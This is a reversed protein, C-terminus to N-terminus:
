EARSLDPIRYRFVEGVGWADLGTPEVTAGADVLRAVTDAAGPDDVDDPPVHIFIGHHPTPTAWTELTRHLQPPHAIVVPVDDRLHLVIPPVRGMATTDIVVLDAGNLLDAPHDGTDPVYSVSTVISAVIVAGGIGILARKPGALCRWIAVLAVAILPWIPALYQDGMAHLPSMATLYSGFVVFTIWLLLAIAAAVETSRLTREQRRWRVFFAVLGAALGLAVIVGIVATPHRVVLLSLASFERGIRSRLLTVSFPQAQRQQRAISELVHPQLVLFTTAGVAHCALLALARRRGRWRAALIVGLAATGTAVAAFSFNTLLGAGVAVALAVIWPPAVREDDAVHLMALLTLVVLMAYLAYPRTAMDTGLVGPVIMWLGAVLLGAEVSRFLRRGLKYLLVGTVVDILVNLLPGSWVSLGVALFWVHAIWFYLPPHIDTDALDTSITAFDFRDDVEIYSKLTSAHIPRGTISGNSASDRVYAGQHATASLWSISDAYEPIRVRDVSVAHLGIAIALWAAVFLM